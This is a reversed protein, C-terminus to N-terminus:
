GTHPLRSKKMITIVITSAIGGILALLPLPFEPTTMSKTTWDAVIKNQADALTMQGSCVADHLSNEEQDKEHAGNPLNYPEPWLNKTDRPAGGLELPILHDYEYNSPSDTDGYQQMSALKLPETYSVPPRVTATYGPVCITSDINNQTVDPDAAGPTCSYDALGNVSHCVSDTQSFAAPASVMLFTLAVGIIALSASNAM